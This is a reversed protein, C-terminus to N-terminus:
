EFIARSFDFAARQLRGHRERALGLLDLEKNVGGLIRDQAFELPTSAASFSGFALATVDDHDHVRLCVLEISCTQM